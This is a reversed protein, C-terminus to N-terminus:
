LKDKGKDGVIFATILISLEYLLWLPGAMLLQSFVDPPTLVAAVIFIGLIAYKRNKRLFTPTVLGIKALFVILIPFEFILGFALLFMGVFSVYNAVSIMPTVSDGGFKLLFRLGIPLALMYAFTAGVGFCFTTSVIFPVAYRKESPYLGPAIFGWLQHLMVPVSLIVAGFFSLKLYVMFSETPSIMILKQGLPRQLFILLRESNPYILAFGIGLSICIWVLCSRLEALHATFPMRKENVEYSTETDKQEEREAEKEEKPISEM